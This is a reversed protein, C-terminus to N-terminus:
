LKELKFDTLIGPLNKLSTLDQRDVVLGACESCYRALATEPWPEVALGTDHSDWLRGRPNRGFISVLESVIHTPLSLVGEKELDSELIDLALPDLWWIFFEM